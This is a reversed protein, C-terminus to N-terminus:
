ALIERIKKVDREMAVLLEDVSHFKEMGRVFDVFEVECAHGYLDAHRDLVFTEVSRRTDGFTPNTGVSIAAPYRVDREMDGVIPSASRVIFWGAYVGDAPLAYKESIYMNATPYGLEAGGRGAGRTVIEFVSFPRGLITAAEAVKGESLLARVRTSSCRDDGLEFLDHVIVEVRYKEGLERMLDTTGAARHGFRFNKGVVITRAHLTDLLVERFFQEPELAALDRTFKLALLHDIGLKSVLSARGVMSSLLPPMAEPRIVAAPHPDFTLLIAPLTQSHARDVATKILQQHGRHVGDFVGITVVSGTLDQPVESLGHWIDVPEHYTMSKTLM